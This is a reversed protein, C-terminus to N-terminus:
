SSFCTRALDPDGPPLYCVSGLSAAHRNVVIPELVRDEVAEVDGGVHVAVAVADAVELAQRPAQVVQVREADGAHPQLREEARGVAVIAVVDRVVVAHARAEAGRAVEDLAHVVRLREPKAHHHVQDGVV